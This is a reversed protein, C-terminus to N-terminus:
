EISGRAVEHAAYEGPGTRVLYKGARAAAYLTANLSNLNKYERGEREIAEGVERYNVSRNLEKSLRAAISGFSEPRGGSGTEATGNTGAGSAPPFTVTGGGGVSGVSGIGTVSIGLAEPSPAEGVTEELTRLFSRLRKSEMKLPELESIQQDIDRIRGRLRPLKARIDDPDFIDIKLSQPLELM